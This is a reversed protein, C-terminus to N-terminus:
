QQQQQQAAAAAEACPDVPAIISLMLCVNVCASSCPNDVMSYCDAKPVNNKYVEAAVLVALMLDGAGYSVDGPRM